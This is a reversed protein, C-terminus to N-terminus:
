SLAIVAPVHPQIVRSGHGVGSRRCPVIAMPMPDLAGAPPRYEVMNMVYLDFGQNPGRPLPAAGAQGIMAAHHAGAAAAGAAAAAAHGVWPGAARQASMAIANAAMQARANVAIPAGAGRGAVGAAQHAARGANRIANNLPFLRAQDLVQVQRHVAGRTAGVM